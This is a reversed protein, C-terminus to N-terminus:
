CKIGRCVYYDYDEENLGIGSYDWQKKLMVELAEIRDDPSPHSSFFHTVGSKGEQKIKQFFQLMEAAAYDSSQLYRLGYKDAEFEKKRSNKAFKFMLAANAIFEADGLDAGKLVSMLLMNSAMRDLAHKKDIHALEHGVVGALAAETDLFKLLGTTVYVFGGMTAFANPSDDDLVFFKYYSPDRYEAEKRQLYPILRYGIETIWTRLIENKYLKFQGADIFQKHIDAGLKAEEKPNLNKLKHSMLFGEVLGGFAGGFSFKPDSSAEEKKGCATTLLTISLIITWPLLKM